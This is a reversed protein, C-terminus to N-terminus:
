ASTKNRFKNFRNISDQIKKANRLDDSMYAIVGEKILIELFENTNAIMDAVLQVDINSTTEESLSNSGTVNPRKQPTQYYGVEFGKVRAIERNMSNRIDPSMQKYAKSDIILEPGNEGALFVTPKQVLGTPTNGGFQANFLKGDQSRKVPFHVPNYLGDEFGQIATGVIRAIQAGANLKNTLITKSTIIKSFAKAPNPIGPPIFAPIATHAATALANAKATSTIIENIALAKELGFMIKYIANKKGLIQGLFNVGSIQANRKALELEKEAKLLAKKHKADLKRLKEDQKKKDAVRKAAWKQKVADIEQQKIEELGAAFASDFGAQNAMKLYRMEIAALDKAEQESIRKDERLTKQIFQDNEWDEIFEALREKSKKVVKDEETFDDSGGTTDKDPVWKGNKFIFKTTGMYKVDGEKPQYSKFLKDAEEESVNLERLKKTLDIEREKQTNLAGIAVIASKRAIEQEKYGELRQILLLKEQASYGKANRIASLAVVNTEEFYDRRLDFEKKANRANIELDEQAEKARLRRSILTVAEEDAMLAKLKIQEKVAETNLKYAGTEKDISIVSDGLRDKLQLTITDLIKKEKATPEVGDKKLDQYSKLLGRSEEALQRNNRSSEFTRQSQLDFETNVDKVAGILKGFWTVLSNLGSTIKQSSFSALMKNKVKELTAALNNNKINYEKTLSTGEQMSKNSLKLLERFRGVNNGAAGIIKKVGDASLKLDALTKATSVGTKKTKALKDSFQLFFETPNTNILDEVEKTSLGMVKAFGKTNKSAEGLFISYARGAIEAQVGSEEFAAGMGLADQITPKMANPLAGVRTAFNAINSETAVGNAGLENIASGIGEYAEEVGVDKTEKFLLKLKGLKSAVAEVGGEFSDGLAVNAKNMTTVFDAIDKKAIGIRGGEEAIKLLDIRSTRTQLLGFSKTLDNVEDKTMGTTKQVDAQADSLKSNYDIMKQLGVAMGTTTAIVSAGFVAYRNFGRAIGKLSFQAQKAKISLQGLRKQIAFLEARYEKEKAGGPVTHMLQQKLLAAKKKLQHMTLGTIGIEKQLAKMKAKNNDITNTNEKIITNLEKWQKSNKKGQSELKRREIKLADTEKTLKRTSKELDLLQKQAPNGNIIIDLKIQEDSITRAM